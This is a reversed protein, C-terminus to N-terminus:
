APAGAAGRRNAAVIQAQGPPPEPTDKVLAEAFSDANAYGLMENHAREFGISSVPNSSLGRGCVSGGYHSPLVVVGDPLELLRRLSSHLIRAQGHPDGSVHLDPRGVDGILLSDGTFVLWAEDSGRRLDSVTYAHHAPAHGPTAIV